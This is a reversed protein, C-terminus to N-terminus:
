FENAVVQRGFLVISIRSSNIRISFLKNRKKRLEDKKILSEIYDGFGKKDEILLKIIKPNVKKYFKKTFENNKYFETFESSFREIFEERYQKDIRKLNWIYAFYQNQMKATNIYNKLEPHKKIFNTIEKYEDCIAFIKGNNNVSSFENDTRYYLYAKTTLIIREALSLTKFAFSTDQYSGGKTELFKIDNKVLFERKYIASWISPQIRLIAPDNKVNTIKDAKFKAIKGAKRAQNKETSYYYFDSKVIDANKEKAIKYLDYFMNKDVFDDAEVIGIYEGSALYIGKNMSAGYGGNKEHITKIRNDKSNGFEYEDIIERCEDLDGEDVLIIEIDTLTQNIISEVCQRLYKEVKYVPIIISVLPKHM